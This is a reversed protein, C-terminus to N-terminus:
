LAVALDRDRSMGACQRVDAHQRQNSAQMDPLLTAGQLTPQLELGQIPDTERVGLAPHDPELAVPLLM